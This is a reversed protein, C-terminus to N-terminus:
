QKIWQETCKETFEGVASMMSVIEIHDNHVWQKYVMSDEVDFDNAQFLEETVTQLRSEQAAPLKYINKWYQYWNICWSEGTWVTLRKQSASLCGM